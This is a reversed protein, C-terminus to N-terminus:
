RELSRLCHEDEYLIKEISMIANELRQTINSINRLSKIEGLARM